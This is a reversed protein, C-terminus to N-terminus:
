QFWLKQCAGFRFSQKDNHKLILTLRSWLEVHFLGMMMCESRNRVYAYIERYIDIYIDISTYIYIYIYMHVYTDSADFHNHSIYIYIYM